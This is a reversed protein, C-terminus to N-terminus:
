IYPKEFFLYIGDKKTGTGTMSVVEGFDRVPNNMLNVEQNTEV